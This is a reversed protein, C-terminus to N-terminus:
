QLKRHAPAERCAAPNIRLYGQNSLCGPHARGDGDKSGFSVTEAALRRWRRTGSGARALSDEAQGGRGAERVRPHAEDSPRRPLCTRGGAQAGLASGCRRGRSGGSSTVLRSLPAQFCRRGSYQPRGRGRGRGAGTAEEGAADQSTYDERGRSPRAARLVSWLDWSEARGSPTTALGAGADASGAARSTLLDRSVLPSRTGASANGQSQPPLKLAHTKQEDGELKLVARRCPLFAEFSFQFLWFKSSNNSRPKARNALSTELSRIEPSGGAKADWFALIVPMLWQAQGTLETIGASQCASAPADNSILLELGAQGVHHFGKEVLFVFTLWTYLCAGTIGAVQSASVPSDSSSPLHLCCHASIPGSSELKPLLILSQSVSAPSDSSGLLRLACYALITGTCELLPLLLFRYDWCKPLGLCIAEPSSNLVLRYDWSSLLSLCSFQKIRSPLPHLLGLGCQQVGAKTVSCTSTLTQWNQIKLLSPTEGHQDPQHQVGSRLHDVRRSKGSHQSGGRSCGRRAQLSKKKKKSCLKVGTAWAPTCHGSRSESCGRGGPNLHNEQRLRRLLMNALITEMEQGRLGGAEAEWPALMVPMLWRAQCFCVNKEQGWPRPALALEKTFVLQGALFRQPWHKASNKRTKSQRVPSM